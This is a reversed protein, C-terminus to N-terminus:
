VLLRTNERGGLFCLYFLICQFTICIEHLHEKEYKNKKENQNVNAHFLFKNTILVYSKCTKLIM